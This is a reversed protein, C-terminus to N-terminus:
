KKNANTSEQKIEHQQCKEAWVQPRDEFQVVRGAKLEELAFEMIDQDTEPRGLHASAMCGCKLRSCLIM